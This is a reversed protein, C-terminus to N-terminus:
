SRVGEGRLSGMPCGDSPSTAKAKREKMGGPLRSRHKQSDDRLSRSRGKDKSFALLESSFLWIM